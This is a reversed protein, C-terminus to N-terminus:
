TCVGPVGTSDGRRCPVVGMWPRCAKWREVDTEDEEDEGDASLLLPSAVLDGASAVEHTPLGSLLVMPVRMGSGLVDVDASFAAGDGSTDRIGIRWEAM